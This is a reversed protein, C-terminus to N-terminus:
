KVMIKKGNHLYLGRQNPKENLRVGQLTYWAGDEAQAEVTEAEQIATYEGGGGGLSFSINSPAGPVPDYILYAKYAALTSGTYNYFGYQDNTGARKGLTLVKANESAGAAQLVAAPTTQVLSGKLYNGEIADVNGNYIPFKFGPNTNAKQAWIIVATEKPIFPYAEAMEITNNEPNLNSVYEVTNIDNGYTDYPIVLPKDYYLTTIKADTVKVPYHYTKGTMNVQKYLHNNYKIDITASFEGDKYANGEQVPENLNAATPKFTVTVVQGAKAQDATISTPSVEFVEPNSSNSNISIEVEKTGITPAEVRFTQEHTYGPAQWFDLSTKTTNIEVPVYHATFSLENWSNAGGKTKVTYPNNTSESSGTWKSFVYDKGDNNYGGDVQAYLYYNHDDDNDTNIEASSSTDWQNNSPANNTKSVYVKGVGTLDDTTATVRSYYSVLDAKALQPLCFLALLFFLRLFFSNQKKTIRGRKEVCFLLSPLNTQNPYFNRM